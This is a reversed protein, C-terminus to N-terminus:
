YSSHVFLNYTVFHFWNKFFLYDSAITHLDTEQTWTDLSTHHHTSNPRKWLFRSTDFYEIFANFAGCITVSPLILQQPPNHTSSARTPQDIFFFELPWFVTQGYFKSAFACSKTVLLPLYTTTPLHQTSSARTPQLRRLGGWGVEAVVRSSPTPRRWGPCPRGGIEDDPHVLQVVLHVVQHQGGVEESQCNDRLTSTSSSFTSQKITLTTKQTSAEKREVSSHGGRFPRQPPSTPM